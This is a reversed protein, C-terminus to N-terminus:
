GGWPCVDTVNGDKDYFTHKFQLDRAHQALEARAKRRELTARLQQTGRGRSQTPTHPPDARGGLATSTAGSNPGSAGDASSRDASIESESYLGKNLYALEDARTPFYVSTTTEPPYNNQVYANKSPRKESNQTGRGRSQTPTDQTDPSDVRGGLATPTARSTTAGQISREWSALRAAQQDLQEQRYQLCKQSHQLDCERLALEQERDKFAQERKEFEKQVSQGDLDIYEEIPWQKAPKGTQQSELQQQMDYWRVYLKQILALREQWTLHKDDIDPFLSVTTKPLTAQSLDIKRMQDCLRLQQQLFRVDGQPVTKKTQDAVKRVVVEKGDKVDWYARAKDTVTPLKSVGYGVLSEEYQKELRLKNVQNTYSIQEDPHWDEGGFPRRGAVYRKCNRVIQSVRAQTINHEQAVSVQTRGDIIVARWIKVNRASQPGPHEIKWFGLGKPLKTKSKKPM